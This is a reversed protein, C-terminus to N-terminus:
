FTLLYVWINVFTKLQSLILYFHHFSKVRLFGVRFMPNWNDQRLKELPSRMGQGFDDKDVMTETSTM